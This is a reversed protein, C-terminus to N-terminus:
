TVAQRYGSTLIATFAALPSLTAKERLPQEFVLEANDDSADIVIKDHETITLATGEPLMFIRHTHIVTLGGAVVQVGGSLEEHLCKISSAVTSESIKHGSAGDSVTTPRLVSCTEPLWFDTDSEILSRVAALAQTPTM